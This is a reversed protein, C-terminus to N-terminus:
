KKARSWVQEHQQQKRNLAMIDNVEQASLPRRFSLIEQRRASEAMTLPPFQGAQAAEAYGPEGAKPAKTIVPINSNRGAQGAVPATKHEPYYGGWFWETRTDLTGYYHGRHIVGYGKIGFIFGTANEVMYRGSGAIDIKTYLKGPKVSTRSYQHAIQETSGTDVMRQFTDLAVQTALAEIKQDFTMNNM